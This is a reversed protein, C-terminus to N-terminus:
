EPIIRQVKPKAETTEAPTTTNSVTAPAIPEVKKPEPLYLDGKFGCGILTSLALLVLLYKMM